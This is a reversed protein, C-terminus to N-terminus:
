RAASGRQVYSVTCRSRAPDVDEVRLRDGSHVHIGLARDSERLTGLCQVLHGDVELAVLGEGNADFGSTATAESFLSGELSSAPTSAFRFLLNWLPRVIVAELLVGGAVAAVALLASPLVPRLLLGTIGVGLVVSFLARPSALSLLTPRLGSRVGVRVGAPLHPHAGHTGHVHAGGGAHSGAGHSSGGHSGLHGAGMVAMGALGAGGLATAFTYFDM